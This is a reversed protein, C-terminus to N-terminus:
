HLGTADVPRLAIKKLRMPDRAGNAVAALIASAMM